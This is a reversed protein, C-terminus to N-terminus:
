SVKVINGSNVQKGDVTLIAGSKDATVASVTGTVQSQDAAQYTVTRGILSVSGAFDQNMQLATMSSSLNTLQEVSTFQAMQSMMQSSDTPAMPDQHQMQAVLLKLFADQGLSGKTDTRDLQTPTGTTGTVGSTTSTSM